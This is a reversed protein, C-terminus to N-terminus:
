YGTASSPLDRREAQSESEEKVASMLKNLMPSTNESLPKSVTITHSLLGDGSNNHLEEEEELNILYRSLRDLRKLLFQIYLESSVLLHAKIQGDIRNDPLKGMQEAILDQMSGKLYHIDDKIIQKKANMEVIHTDRSQPTIKNFVQRKANDAEKLNTILPMKETLRKSVLSNTCVLESQDDYGHTTSEISDRKHHKHSPHQNRQDTKEYKSAQIKFAETVVYILVNHICVVFLVCFSMAYIFGIAGYERLLIRIFDLIEDGALIASLTVNIRNLTDFRETEHFACFGGFLFAFYVPVVGFIIFVLSKFTIKISESVVKLREVRSVITIVNMWSFCCGLGLCISIMKKLDIDNVAVESLTFLVLINSLILFTNSLLLGFLPLDVVRRQGTTSHPADGKFITQVHTFESVNKRQALWRQKVNKLQM